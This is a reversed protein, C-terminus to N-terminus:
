VFRLYLLIKKKVINNKKDTCNGLIKIIDSYGDTEQRSETYFWRVQMEVQGIWEM